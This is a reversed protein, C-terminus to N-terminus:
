KKRDRRNKNRLKNEEKTKVKHCLKCVPKLNSLECWVRNVVMDWSMLELSTDVPVIPDSHDVDMQYTATPKHCATCRSWKTVRPRAPDFHEIRSAEIAAKRLDSRSFVRRIAGKLLNREKATIRPNV